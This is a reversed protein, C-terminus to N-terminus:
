CFSCVGGTLELMERLECLLGESKWFQNLIIAIMLDSKTMDGFRLKM